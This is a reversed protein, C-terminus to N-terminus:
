VGLIIPNDVHIELDASLAIGVNGNNVGRTGITLTQLTTDLAIVASRSAAALGGTIVITSPDVSEVSSSAALMGVWLGADNGVTSSFDGIETWGAPAAGGTWDDARLGALLFVQSFRNAVLGAFDINAVAGNVQVSASSTGFLPFQRDSVGRLTYVQALLDDGLSAGTPTVTPGTGGGAVTARKTWIKLSSLNNVKSVWDSSPPTFGLDANVNRSGAVLVMLDGVTTSAHIPVGAIAANNSTQAAGAGVFSPALAAIGTINMLEGGIRVKFAGDPIGNAWLTPTRESGTADYSLLTAAGATLGAFLRSGELDQRQDSTAGGSSDLIGVRYPSASRCTMTADLEFQDFEEVYGAILVDLTETGIDSPPNTLQVRQWTDMGEWTTLLAAMNRRHFSLKLAEIRPEDVAGVNVAWGAHDIVQADSSLSYTQGTGYDGVGQPDVDRSNINRPGSTRQVRASAGGARTATMDNVIFDDSDNVVLDRVVHTSYDLTMAVASRARLELYSRETFRLKGDDTTTSGGDMFGDNALLCERLNAMVDSSTQMGMAVTDIGVGVRRTNPVDQEDLIRSFRTGPPEGNYADGALDVASIDYGDYIAYHGSAFGDVGDQAIGSAVAGLNGAAGALASGSIFSGNSLDFGFVVFKWDFQISNVSKAMLRMHMWTGPFLASITFTGSNVILTGSRDYAKVAYTTSTLEIDWYNINSGGTNNVWLRKLLTTTAPAADLKEFWDFQWGNVFTHDGPYFLLYSTNDFVPLPKSGPLTSDSAWKINGNRAVHGQGIITPTDTDAGDELPMYSVLEARRSTSTFIPSDNIQLGPGIQMRRRDDTAQVKVVRLEGVPFDPPWYPIVGEFRFVDGNGSNWYVQVRTNVGLRGFYPSNMNRTSFRKDTNIFTLDCTDFTGDHSQDNQGLGRKIKIKSSRFVYTSVDTYVGATVVGLLKVTITLPTSPFTVAM